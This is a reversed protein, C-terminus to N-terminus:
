DKCHECFDGVITDLDTMMITLAQEIVDAIKTIFASGYIKPDCQPTLVLQSSFENGLLAFVELERNTDLQQLQAKGSSLKLLNGVTSGSQITLFFPSRLDYSAYAQEAILSEGSKMTRQLLQLFTEQKDIKLRHPLTRVLLGITNIYQENNRNASGFSIVTDDTGLAVSLALHYAALLLYFYSTKHKRAFTSVTKLDLKKTGIELAKIHKDLEQHTFNPVFVYDNMQKQLVAIREKGYDTNIRQFEEENFAHFSATHVSFDPKEYFTLIQKFSIFVSNGDSFLHNQITFLLYDDEAIKFLIFKITIKGLQIVPLVAEANAQRIADAYKEEPTEGITERLDLHYAYQLLISQKITDNEQTLITRFADNTDFVKQIAQEMRNADFIFGNYLHLAAICAVNRNENKQPSSVLFGNSM